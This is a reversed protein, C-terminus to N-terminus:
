AEKAEVKEPEKPPIWESPAGAALWGEVAAARDIEYDLTACTAIRPHRRWKYIVCGNLAGPLVKVTADWHGAFQHPALRAQAETLDCVVDYYYFGQPHEVRVIDPGLAARAADLAQLGAPPHIIEIVHKSAQVCSFKVTFM